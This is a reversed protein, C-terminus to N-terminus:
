FWCIKNICEGTETGEVIRLVAKTVDDGCVEWHHQSFHAPYGDPRPAKTPFMEFLATKVEHHSYPANLSANMKPTVKRLVTELVRDKDHVGESTYLDKYFATAMAEMEGKDETLQGDPCLLYKIQNKWRRRSARLHFFYTNKDGHMLWEVRM